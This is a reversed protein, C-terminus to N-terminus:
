RRQAEADRVLWPMIDVRAPKEAHPLQSIFQDSRRKLDRIGKVQRRLEDMDTQRTQENLRDLKRRYSREELANRVISAVFAILIIAAFSALCLHDAVFDLM